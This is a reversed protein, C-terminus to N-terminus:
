YPILELTGDMGSISLAYQQTNGTADTYRIGINPIDGEFVLATRISQGAELVGRRYLLKESFTPEGASSIEVDELALLRFDTVSEITTFVVWAPNEDLTTMVSDVIEGASAAESEWEARLSRPVFAGFGITHMLHNFRTGWGELVEVPCTAVAAVAFTEDWVAYYIQMVGPNFSSQVSFWQMSLCTETTDEEIEAKQDANEELFAFPHKGLAQETMMEVSVPLETEIPEILLSGGSESMTTDVTLSEADYWFFIGEDWQYLTELVQELEGEVMIGSIRTEALAQSACLCLALFLTFSKRM